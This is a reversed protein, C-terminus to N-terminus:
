EVTASILTSPTESPTFSFTGITSISSGILRNAITKKPFRDDVLELESVDESVLPWDIGLCASLDLLFISGRASVYNLQHKM